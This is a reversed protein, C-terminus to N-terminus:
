YYFGPPRFFTMMRGACMIVVLLGLSVGASIKQFVSAEGDADMGAVQRYHIAYFVAVNVAMLSLGGVKVYFADNYFYQDPAGSIFAVGTVGLIIFGALGWPVLRHLASPKIGKAVGLLRLDLAGVTGVFLVLGVFHLTEAIPWAWAFNTIVYSLTTSTIWDMFEQM